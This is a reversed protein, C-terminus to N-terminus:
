RCLSKFGKELLLWRPVRMKCPEDVVVPLTLFEINEVPFVVERGEVECVVDKNQHVFRVVADVSVEIMFSDDNKM